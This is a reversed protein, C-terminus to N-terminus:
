NSLPIFISFKQSISSIAKIVLYGNMEFLKLKALTFHFKTHLDVDSIQHVSEIEDKLSENTDASTIDLEFNVFTHGLNDSYISGWVEVSQSLYNSYLLHSIIKSVTYITNEIDVRVIQNLQLSDSNKYIIKSATLDQNNVADLKEFLEKVSIERLQLPKSQSQILELVSANESIEGLVKAHYDISKASISTLEEATQNEIFNADEQIKALESKIYLTLKKLLDEYFNKVRNIEKEINILEYFNSHYENILKDAYIALILLILSVLVSFLLLSSQISNLPILSTDEKIGVLLILDSNDIREYTYYRDVQDFILKFPTKAMVMTEWQDPLKLQKMSDDIFDHSNAKLARINGQTDILAVLSTDGLNYKEFYDIIVRPDISLVAVGNFDGFKNVLKITIQISWKNSARGLVPKSFFLEYPYKDKHIWFHERDSLDIKKQNKLNSYIYIGNKDIIGAQNFINNKLIGSKLYDDLLKENFQSEREYHFKLTKLIEDSTEILSQIEAKTSRAVNQIRNPIATEITRDIVKYEYFTWAWLCAILSTFVLWLIKRNVKITM